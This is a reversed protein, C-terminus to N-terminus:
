QTLNGANGRAYYLLRSHRDLLRVQKAEPIDPSCSSNEGSQCDKTSPEKLIRLRLEVPTNIRRHLLHPILIPTIRLPFEGTFTFSPTSPTLQPEYRLLLLARPM